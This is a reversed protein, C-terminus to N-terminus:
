AAIREMDDISCLENSVGNYNFFIHSDLGNIYCDFDDRSYGYADALKKIIAEALEHLVYNTINGASERINDEGIDDLVVDFREQWMDALSLDTEYMGLCSALYHFTNM